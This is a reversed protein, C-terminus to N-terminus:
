AYIQCLVNILTFPPLPVPTFIAGVLKDETVEAFTCVIGWFKRVKLKLWKVISTYFKLNTGLAMGLNNFNFWSLGEFFTTKRTM